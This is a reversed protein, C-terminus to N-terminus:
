WLCIFTYMWLSDTPSVAMISVVAADSMIALLHFGDWPPVEVCCSASLLSLLSSLYAVACAVQFVCVDRALVVCRVHWESAIDSSFRYVPSLCHSGLPPVPHACLTQSCVVMLSRELYHLFRGFQVPHHSSLETFSCALWSCVLSCLKCLCM